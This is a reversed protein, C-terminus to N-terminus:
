LDKMFYNFKKERGLNTEPGHGPLVNVADPLTTLRKLSNLMLSMDGGPLDTRGISEAFLTDGTVILENEKYLCIGGPTHGPTHLVTFTISGVSVTDGENLIVTPKPLTDIEFGWSAAMRGAEEYISLEDKHICLDLGNSEVLEPVAGIHDFHTHTCVIKTAKLGNESVIDAIRDPEDGPDIIMCEKTETDGIIICNVQLQGVVLKKIIM